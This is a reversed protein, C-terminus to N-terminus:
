SCLLIFNVVAFGFRVCARVIINIITEGLFYNKIGELPVQYM